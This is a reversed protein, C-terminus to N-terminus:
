FIKINQLNKWTAESYWIEVFERISEAEHLTIEQAVTRRLLSKISAFASADRSGFDSAVRRAVTLLESEQAVEHVLGINRAEDSTYMSGSYVVRSATANGVWFRLMEISGAFLSSGFRIENLSIKATGSVMVRYDCALALMCGGAIAHGNLAAVVPKPYLFLYTYIQTFNILYDTFKEKTFSLFEPIDFGFSFFKGTGTLIVSRIEPDNELAKLHARLQDVVDGNLANVKGKNLTLVAIRDNKQLRIFNAEEIRWETSLCKGEM